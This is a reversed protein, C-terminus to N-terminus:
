SPEVLIRLFDRPADVRVGLRDTGVFDRQNHTVIAECGAAVALELVLDDKPDPLCPRWLFFINQRHAVQCVYDLFGDIDQQEYLGATLSRALADEYEFLLPVSIAIEFRDEWVLSLLKYSAGQRSRLAAVVVSTDLVVRRKKVTTDYAIGPSKTM